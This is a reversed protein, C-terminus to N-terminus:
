PNTPYSTLHDPKWGFAELAARIEDPGAEPNSPYKIRVSAVAKLATEREEPTGHPGPRSSAATVPFWANPGTGVIFLRMYGDHLEWTIARNPNFTPPSELAPKMRDQTTIRM